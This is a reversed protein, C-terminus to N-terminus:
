SGNAGLHHSVGHWRPVEADLGLQDLARACSQRVIDDLSKPRNYFAPVPPFVTVGIEAALQLLRIQGAHLPTERIMLVLKRGEKLTVGAARLLLNDEYSNVIGSLTKISCPAVIMGQTRFSGSAISAGIDGVSHVHTALAHVEEIPSDTELRLTLGAAKTMVLHSAVGMEKLTRLLQIGYVSGTAGTMGVIIAM